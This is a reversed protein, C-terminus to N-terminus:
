KEINPWKAVIFILWIIDCTQWLLSLIIGFLFYVMLFKGFHHFKALDPRVTGKRQLQVVLQLFEERKLRFEELERKLVDVVRSQQDEQELLEDM